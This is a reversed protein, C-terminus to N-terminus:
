IIPIMNIIPIRGYNDIIVGFWRAVFIIIDVEQEIAISKYKTM